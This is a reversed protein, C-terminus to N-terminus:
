PKAKEKTDNTQLWLEHQLVGGNHVVPIQLQLENLLVRARQTQTHHTAIAHPLRDHRRYHLAIATKLGGATLDGHIQHIEFQGM